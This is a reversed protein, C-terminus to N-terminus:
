KSPVKISGYLELFKSWSPTREVPIGKRIMDNVVAVPVAGDPLSALYPVTLTKSKVNLVEDRIVDGHVLNPDMNDFRTFDSLVFSLFEDLQEVTVPESSHYLSNLKEVTEIYALPQM